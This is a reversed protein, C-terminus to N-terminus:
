SCISMVDIVVVVEFTTGDTEVVEFKADMVVPSIHGVTLPFVVLLSSFLFKELRAM